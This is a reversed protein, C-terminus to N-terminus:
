AFEIFTDANLVIRGPTVLIQEALGREKKSANFTLELSATKKGAATWVEVIIEQVDHKPRSLRVHALHKGDIPILRDDRTSPISSWRAVVAGKEADVTVYSDKDGDYTLLTQGDPTSALFQLAEKAVPRAKAFPSLWLTTSKSVDLVAGLSSVGSVTKSKVSGVKALTTRDHLTAIKDPYASRLVVHEDTFGAGSLPLKPHLRVRKVAPKKGTALTVLRVWGEAECIVVQRGDGSAVVAAPYKSGPINLETREGTHLDILRCGGPHDWFATDADIPALWGEKTFIGKLSATKKALTRRLKM